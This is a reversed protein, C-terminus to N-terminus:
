KRWDNWNITKKGTALPRPQQLSPPPADYTGRAWTKVADMAPTWDLAYHQAWQWAADEEICLVNASSGSVAQYVDGDKTVHRLVGTPSALHGIEHLAVAYTTEDIIPAIMVARLPAVGFAQEPALEPNEHLAVDFAIALEHAHRQLDRATYHNM